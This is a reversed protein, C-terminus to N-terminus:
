EEGEPKEKKKVIVEPEAGTGGAAAAVDEVKKTVVHVVVLEPDDLLKVGEPVKLERVHVTGGITLASVDLKISEPVSLAPCEIHVEHLPQELIGGSLVGPAIGKIEVPVKVEIREDASVRFFDVHLIEKGLHCWQLDRILVKETKGDAKLDLVRAHTRIANEIDDLAITVSQPAEKHGYVIAPIRGTKRLRRSVRTGQTARPEANLVLSDAM